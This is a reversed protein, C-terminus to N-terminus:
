KLKKITPKRKRFLSIIGIVGALGALVVLPQEVFRLFRNFGKRAQKVLFTKPQEAEGSWNFTV